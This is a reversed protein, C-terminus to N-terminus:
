RFLLFMCPKILAEVFSIDSPFNETLTTLPSPYETALNPILTLLKKAFDALTYHLTHTKIVLNDSEKHFVLYERYKKEYIFIYLLDTANENEHLILDKPRHYKPANKPLNYKETAEWLYEFTNVQGNFYASAFPLNSNDDPINLLEIRKKVLLKAADKNGVIAAIHLATQGDTNKNEIKEEKGIFNLLKEVLYNKGERVALHLM